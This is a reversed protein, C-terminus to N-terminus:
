KWLITDPTTWLGAPSEATSTVGVEAGSAGAEDMALIVDTVHYALEASAKHPIGSEISKIMDAIGIGRGYDAYEVFQPLPRWESDKFRRILVDGKYRNPDPIVMTGKEGYIEIYPTQSSWIDFSSLFSGIIGSEFRLMTQVYTPVDVTIKEGRRPAVKITREPWTMRSMAMVSSVPGLMSVFINLYYPAMDMMPGAGKQYFFDADPRWFENGRMPCISNVGVPAGIWDDELAKKATQSPASMFTDPACGVRKGCRKAVEMIHNMGERSVALPKETYVHKGSELARVSVEEHAMPVTLNVIIDVNDDNYVIDPLGFKEIGYEEARHKAKDVDIDGLATIQFFDSYADRAFRLYHSSIKGCGIIGVNYKRM